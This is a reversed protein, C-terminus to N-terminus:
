RQTGVKIDKFPMDRDVSPEKPLGLIRDGIINKQIENTGGAIASAPATLVATAWRDGKADGVAWAQSSSGPSPWAWTPAAGPSSPASCSAWRARPVPPGAPRRPPGSASAPSAWSGSSPTCRPWARASSPTASCATPRPRVCSPTARGRRPSRRGLRRHGGAREHAPGGLPALRRGGHGARQRAPIRVDSFFVENFNSAGTIQKLPKCEIGPSTMDVIFMTIGRHKPADLNTRAILIGWQSYHAGSTWVKQGNVVWEDGDRVARTQLAAVDSGAGPESYLQCWIREGRLLTPLFAAKQEDTGFELITPACMGHGIQYVSTPPDFDAAVENFIEQYRKSLEAGGWQKPWTIFALGEDFLAAQYAKAAQILAESEPDLPGSAEEDGGGDGDGGARKRRPAHGELFALARQRFAAEEATDAQQVDDIVAM